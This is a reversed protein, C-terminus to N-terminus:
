QIVLLLLRLLGLLENHRETAFGYVLNVFKIAVEFDLIFFLLLFRTEQLDLCSERESLVLHMGDNGFLCLPFLVLQIGFTVELLTQLSWRSEPWWTCGLDNRFAASLVRETFLQSCPIPLSIVFHLWEIKVTFGGLGNLLSLDLVAGKLFGLFGLLDQSDKLCTYEVVYGKCTTMGRAGQTLLILGFAVKKETQILLFLLSLLLPSMLPPQNLSRM